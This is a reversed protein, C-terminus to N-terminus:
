RQLKVASKMNDRSASQPVAELLFDGSLLLETAHTTVPVGEILRPRFISSRIHDKAVNRVRFSKPESEAIVKINRAKGDKTVDFSLRVFPPTATAESNSEDGPLSITMVPIQVPKDFLKKLLDRDPEDAALLQYAQKYNEVATGPRDNIFYWDGLNVLAAAKDAPNAEPNGTTINAIRTLLSRVRHMQDMIRIDKTQQKSVFYNPNPVEMLGCVIEVRGGPRLVQYCRQQYSYRNGSGEFEALPLNAIEYVQKYRALTLIKLPGVLRLDNEGYLDEMIEVTTQFMDVLDYLIASRSDGILGKSYAELKWTGARLIVPLLAPDGSKLHRQHLWLLVHYNQDLAEWDAAARNVEILAELIPAQSMSQIGDNVKKIHLSRNLAEAAEQYRGQNKYLLGLGLLQEGLQPDYPGHAKEQETIQDLYQRVSSDPLQLGPEDQPAEADDSDTEQAHASLATLVLSLLIIRYHFLNM